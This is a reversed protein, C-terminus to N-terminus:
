DGSVAEIEEAELAVIRETPLEIIQTEVPYEM